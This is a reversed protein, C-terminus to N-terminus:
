IKMQSLFSALCANLLLPSLPLSPIVVPSFHSPLTLSSGLSGGPINFPWLTSPLVPHPNPPLSRGPTDSSTAGLNRLESPLHFKLHMRPKTKRGGEGGRESERVCVCHSCLCYHSHNVPISHSISKFSHQCFCFGM